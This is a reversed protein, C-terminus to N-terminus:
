DEPQEGNDLEKLESTLRDISKTHWHSIGANKAATRIENNSLRPPGFDPNPVWVVVRVPEDKEPEACCEEPTYFWGDDLLHLYSFPDCIQFQCPIGRIKATNGKKFLIVAM